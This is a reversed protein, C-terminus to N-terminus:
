ITTYSVVTAISNAVSATVSIFDNNSMLLKESGAYLQYTDNALITLNKIVVNSDSVAVGAPVVNISIVVSSATYNAFSCWTVASNNTSTYITTATTAAAINTTTLAM